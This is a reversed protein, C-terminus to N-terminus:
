MRRQYIKIDFMPAAAIIHDFIDSLLNEFSAWDKKISYACIELPVGYETAQLQHVLIGMEHNLLDNANLYATIYARFVGLNTQQRGNIVLSTDIKNAKNYEAIDEEKQDLYKQVREIKRYREIMEPTCFRVSDIDVIISRVM